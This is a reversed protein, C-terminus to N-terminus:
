PKGKPICRGCIISRAQWTRMPIIASVGIGITAYPTFSRQPDSPIYKFFNFDGKLAVEFINTNFSLNRRRQYENQSYQDSYGLQCYTGTLRIAAYDGFQKRYFAGLALKPRNLAARNNLDGFYHAAGAIVGYEGELVSEYQARVQFAASLILLIVFAKKM